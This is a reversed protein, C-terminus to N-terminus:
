WTQLLVSNTFLETPLKQEWTPSNYAFHLAKSDTLGAVNLSNLASQLRAITVVHMKHLRVLAPVSKEQM